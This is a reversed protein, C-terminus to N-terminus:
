QIGKFGNFFSKTAKFAKSGAKIVVGGVAAGVVEVAVADFAKHRAEDLM